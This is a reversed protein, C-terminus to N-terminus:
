HPLSVVGSYSALVLSTALAQLKAMLWQANSVTLAGSMVMAMVNGIFMNFLDRKSIKLSQAATRDAISNIAAVQAADKIEKVALRKLEALAALFQIREDGAIPEDDGAVPETKTLAPVQKLAEWLDVDSLEQKLSKAWTTVMTLQKEWNSSLEERRRQTGAPSFDALHFDGMMDFRFFFEPSGRHVLVSIPVQMHKSVASRWDFDTLNLGVSKLIEFVQNRQGKILEQSLTGVGTKAKPLFVGSPVFQIFPGGAAEVEQRCQPTKRYKRPLSPTCAV